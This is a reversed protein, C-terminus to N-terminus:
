AGAGGAGTARTPNSYKSLSSLVIKNLNEAEEKCFYERRLAQWV